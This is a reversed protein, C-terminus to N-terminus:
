PQRDLYAGLADLRKEWFRSYTQVWTAIEHLKGADLRYLRLRGVRRVAVLGARRLIQLHESVAPQSIRLAAVLEKVPREGPLLLDLLRRRTADAVAGFVDQDAPTRPM